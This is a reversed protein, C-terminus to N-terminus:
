IILDKDWEHCCDLCSNRQKTKKKAKEALEGEGKYSMYDDIEKTNISGCKPCKTEKTM